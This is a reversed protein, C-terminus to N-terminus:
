ELVKQREMLNVIRDRIGQKTLRVTIRLAESITKIDAKSFVAKMDEPMEGPYEPENDIAKLIEERNFQKDGSSTKPKNNKLWKMCDLIHKYELSDKSVSQQELWVIDEGIIREWAEQNLETM